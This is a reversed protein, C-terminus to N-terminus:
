DSNEVSKVDRWLTEGPKRHWVNSGDSIWELDDTKASFTFGPVRLDNKRRSHWINQLQEQTM